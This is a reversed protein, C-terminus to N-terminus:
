KLGKKYEIITRLDNLQDKVEIDVILPILKGISNTESFATKIKGDIELELVGARTKATFYFSAKILNEWISLWLITKKKYVIKCLWAKGDKYFRWQPDMEFENKILYMLEQYVAFLEKGMAHELVEDTPEIGEDRLFLMQNESKMANALVDRM